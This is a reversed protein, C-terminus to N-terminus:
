VAAKAKRIASKALRFKQVLPIHSPCVFTCCGCEFCDMLHYDSAMEDYRQVNALLGMQSPNLFLPCADVCHGCRICPYEHRSIMTDTQDDVMAIVGTSGKTIPIDLSSAAHGMMPGGMVVTSVNPETGVKELIYRLPTGIPIRYNGKRQVGPGGVTIVRDQLGQGSPLLAGIQATTGVNICVAGVDIPLGGSPVKRGLIATILMKEAGQPYKVPLVEVSIPQGPPIAKRMVEAADRKNDEVAIIARPAGTAKMVYPIGRMIDNAHELMVRHDTTLYPECEAGNVIVLDAQKDDPVKLKVHTPFAAGGLGVIGAQQIAAIIEDKSATEVDCPNGGPMEQTSAPFPELFFAPMMKGNIAPSRAIKRIVGTAPAHIAVSMFGDPQAICQGRTVEAGEGVIPIAPKGLHQSLPVILLSAFDFQRIAMDKTDAKFEPPHIGHAFTKTGLLHRM